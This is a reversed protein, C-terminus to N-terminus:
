QYILTTTTTPGTSQAYTCSLTPVHANERGCATNISLPNDGCRRWTKGLRHLVRM